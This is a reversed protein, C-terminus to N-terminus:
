QLNFFLEFTIILDLNNLIKMQSVSIPKTEPRFCFLFEQALNDEAM